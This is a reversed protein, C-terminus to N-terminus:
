HKNTRDTWQVHRDRLDKLTGSYSNEEFTSKPWVDVASRSRPMQLQSEEKNQFSLLGSPAGDNIRQNAQVTHSIMSAQLLASGWLRCSIEDYVSFEVVSGTSLKSLVIRCRPLIRVRAGSVPVSWLLVRVRADYCYLRGQVLRLFRTRRFMGIWSMKCHGQLTVTFDASTPINGSTRRRMMNTLLTTSRARRLKADGNNSWRKGGDKQQRTLHVLHDARSPVQQAPCSATTHYPDLPAVPREQSVRASAHHHHINLPEDISKSATVVESTIKPIPIPKHSKRRVSSRGNAKDAPWVETRQSKLIPFREHM